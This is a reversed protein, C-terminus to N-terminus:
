NESKMFQWTNNKKPPLPIYMNWFLSHYHNIVRLIYQFEQITYKLYTFKIIHLNCRLFLSTHAFKFLFAELIILLFLLFIIRPNLAFIM